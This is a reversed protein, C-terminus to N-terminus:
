IKILKKTVTQHGDTSIKILYIGAPLDSVDFRQNSTPLHRIISGSFDLIATEFKQDGDFVDLNVLHTAPNPYISIQDDLSAEDVDLILVTLTQSVDEAANYNADGEQVATIETTGEGNIHVVNDSVTAVFENSSIFVLPLGSSASGQLEFTSHVGMTKDELPDFTIIQDAKTITLTQAVDPAAHYNPNGVQSATITATGTGVITVTKGSITAVNEDSSTYKVELGSSASGILEFGNDIATKKAIEEFTIMQSSKTVQITIEDKASCGYENYGTVTYTTTGLPVIGEGDEVLNDWEYTQAGSGTLIVSEGGNIETATANAAVDEPNPNVTVTVLTPSLVCGNNAVSTLKYINTEVPVFSEGNTVGDSWSFSADGSAELMVEDGQCIEEESVEVNIAPLSKVSVTINDSNTCGNADTGTVTFTTSESIEFPVGDDADHSWIYSIAGSGTLIISEDPCVESESTNAVVEPLSNVTVTVSALAEVGNCSGVSELRYTTTVSPTVELSTGSGVYTDDADDFWQWETVEGIGNFQLTTPQLQCVTLETAMIQEIRPLQCNLWIMNGQQINTVYADLDGDSDLDGLDVGASYRTLFNDYGESFIGNGDNLYVVNKQNDSNAVFADLDGDQDLDGLQVGLSVSNGLQQGSETFIANGNNLWVTNAESNSNAIFADFDGDQDLDGLKVRYSSASGLLQGSDTFSGNGDNLWVTNGQAENAVLADLDGDGDLDETDVGISKASGLSQGNTVFNGSGDNLWVENAEDYNAVFADIDGDGDFDGLSVGASLASGLNQSVLSFSASGDNLWVQNNSGLISIFVDLDGDDDLDALEIDFAGWSPLDAGGTFTGTGDNIWVKNDEAASSNAVVADLDGDGDLDGLAIGRSNNDQLNQGNHFFYQAKGTFLVGISLLATMLYQKYM